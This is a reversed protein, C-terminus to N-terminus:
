VEGVNDDVPTITIVGMHAVCSWLMRAIIERDTYDRHDHHIKDDTVDMIFKM